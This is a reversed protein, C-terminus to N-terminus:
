LIFVLSRPSFGHRELSTCHLLWQARAARSDHRSRARKQAPREPEAHRKSRVGLRAVLRDDELLRHEVTNGSIKM